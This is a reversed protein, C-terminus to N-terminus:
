PLLSGSFFTAFASDPSVTEAEGTPLLLRGGRGHRLVHIDARVELMGDGVNWVARTLQFTRADIWLEGNGSVPPAEDDTATQDLLTDLRDPDISVEYHYLYTEGSKSMGNDKDIRLAQLQRQILLADAAQRNVASRKFSGTKWWRKLATAPDDFCESLLEQAGPMDFQDIRFYVEGTGPVTLAGSFALPQEGDGGQVRGSANVLLTAGGDVVAGSVVANIVATQAVTVLLSGSLDASQLSNGAILARKMVEESGFQEPKSTCSFLALTCLVTGSLLLCRKMLRM